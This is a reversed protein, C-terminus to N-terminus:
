FRGHVKLFLDDGDKHNPYPASGTLRASSLRMSVAQSLEARCPEMRSSVARHPKSFMDNQWRLDRSNPMKLETHIYGWKDSLLIM